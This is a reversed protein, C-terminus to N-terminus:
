YVCHLAIVALRAAKPPVDSTPFTQLLNELMSSLSEENKRKPTTSNTQSVNSSRSVELFPDRDYLRDVRILTEGDEFAYISLSSVAFTVERTLFLYRLSLAILTLEDSPTKPPPSKRSLLAAQVTACKKIISVNLPEYQNPLRSNVSHFQKLFDLLPIAPQSLASVRGAVSRYDRLISKASTSDYTM